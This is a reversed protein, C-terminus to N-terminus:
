NVSIRNYFSDALCFDIMKKNYVGLPSEQLEFYHQDWQENYCHSWNRQLNCKLFRANATRGDVIILCSPQLFHEITLIDAAMPMRDQQKTSIGRINGRPSFLDPGDLYIIDPCVNPLTSYYTCVRGNFVGMELESFYLNCINEKLLIEPIQSLVVQIYDDYNDISHIQYAGDRRLNANTYESYCLRNSLLADAMVITSKGVGFELVTLAKRSRVIYHLRVLDDYESPFPTANNIDVNFTPPRITKELINGDNLTEGLLLNIKNDNLYADYDFSDPILDEFLLGMIIRPHFILWVHNRQPHLLACM